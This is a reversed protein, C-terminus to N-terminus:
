ICLSLLEKEFLEGLIMFHSYFTDSNAVKLCVISKHLILSGWQFSLLVLQIEIDGLITYFSMLSIMLMETQTRVGDFAM